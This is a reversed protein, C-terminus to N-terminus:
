EPRHRPKLCPASKMRGSKESEGIHLSASRHSIKRITGSPPPNTLSTAFTITTYAIDACLTLASSSLLHLTRSFHLHPRSVVIGPGCSCVECTIILIPRLHPGASRHLCSISLLRLPMPILNCRSGNGEDHTLLSLSNDTKPAGVAECDGESLLCDPGLARWNAREM